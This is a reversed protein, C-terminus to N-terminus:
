KERRTSVRDTTSDRPPVFLLGGLVVVAKGERALLYATSTGAIGAGVICADVRMAETLKSELPFNSTDMCVSRAQDLTWKM